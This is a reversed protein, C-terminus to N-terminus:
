QMFPVPKSFVHPRPRLPFRGPPLPTPTPIQVNNLQPDADSTIPAEKEPAMKWNNFDNTYADYVPKVKDWAARQEPTAAEYGDNQSQDYQMIEAQQEPPFNKLTKGQARAQILAQTGGYNYVDDQADAPFDKYDEDSVSNQILHTTEHRVVQRPSQMFREPDRIVVTDRSDPEVEAVIGMKKEKGTLPKDSIVAKLNKVNL